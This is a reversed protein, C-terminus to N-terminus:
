VEKMWGNLGITMTPELGVPADAGGSLPNGMSARM